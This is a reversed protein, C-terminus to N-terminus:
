LYLRIPALKSRKIQSYFNKSDHFQAWDRADRFKTLAAIADHITPM